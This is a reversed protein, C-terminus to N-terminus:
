KEASIQTFKPVILNPYLGCASQGAGHIPLFVFHEIVFGGHFSSIIFWSMYIRSFVYNLLVSFTLLM